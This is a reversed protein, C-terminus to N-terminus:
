PNVKKLYLEIMGDSNRVISPIYRLKEGASINQKIPESEYRQGDVSDFILKMTFLDDDLTITVRRLM